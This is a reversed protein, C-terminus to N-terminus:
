GGERERTLGCAEIVRLAQRAMGRLRGQESYHAAECRWQRRVNADLANRLTRNFNDQKFPVTLAVGAGSRKVHGAYGCEGSAIVPLDCSLAEVIAMGALETRSPQLLIDAAQMLQPVDDRGGLFQVNAAIGLSKALARMADPKGAGAVWLRCNAREAAPLQAFARMSRDVGKTRFHSGIMLMLTSDTALKFQQRFSGREAPTPSRFADDVGPPLLTFRQPPTRYCRRYTEVEGETLALIRTKSQPSFVAAEMDSLIRFRPLLRVLFGRHRLARARYCPDAAFYVDLGRMRIFGILVDVAHTQRWALVNESFRQLRRHNSLGAAPLRVVDIGAPIDGNWSHVLARVQHGEAVAATAIKLFDRQLGGYPFCDLLV